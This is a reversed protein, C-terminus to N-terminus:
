SGHVRPWSNSPRWARDCARDCGGWPWRAHAAGSIPLLSAIFTRLGDVV